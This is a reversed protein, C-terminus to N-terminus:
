GCDQFVLSKPLLMCSNIIEIDEKHDFVDLFLACINYCLEHQLCAYALWLYKVVPVFKRDM